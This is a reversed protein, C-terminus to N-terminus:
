SHYTALGGIIGRISVRHVRFIQNFSLNAGDIVVSIGVNGDVGGSAGEARVGRVPVGRRASVKSDTRIDTIIAATSNRRRNPENSDFFSFVTEAPM